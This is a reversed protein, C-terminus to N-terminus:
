FSETHPGTAPKGRRDQNGARNRGEEGLGVWLELAHPIQDPRSREGAPGEELCRGFYELFDAMGDTLADLTLAEVPLTESRLSVSTYGQGQPLQSLSVTDDGQRFEHMSRLGLRGGVSMRDYGLRMMYDCSGREFISAFHNPITAEFTNAM